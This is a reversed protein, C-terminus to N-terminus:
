DPQSLRGTGQQRKQRTSLTYLISTWLTIFCFEYDMTNYDEDTRNNDENMTTHDEDMTTHDEDM